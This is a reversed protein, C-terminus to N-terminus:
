PAPRSLHPSDRVAFRLQADRWDGAYDIGIRPGVAISSRPLARSRVRELFLLRGEALDEGDHARTIGLAECLKAPGSCLSTERPASGRRALMADLGDEPHLARVLVAAPNGARAAVVNVCHHMGYVFYVYAQGGGGWMSENAPTRRGGFSHAARDEPGLYAETEVIIGSTRTGGIRSVLRQGLLRRALTAADTVFFSRPLRGENRRTTM